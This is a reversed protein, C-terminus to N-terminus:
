VDSPPPTDLAGVLRRGAADYLKEVREYETVLWDGFSPWKNAVGESVGGLVRVVEGNPELLACSRDEYGCIAIGEGSPSRSFNVLTPVVIDFPNCAMADFDSRDYSRRLCGNHYSYFARLDAPLPQNLTDEVSDILEESLPGFLRHLYAGIGREPLHGILRTGDGFVQVGLHSWREILEHLKALYPPM